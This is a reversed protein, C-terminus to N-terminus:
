KCNNRVLRPRIFKLQIAVGLTERLLVCRSEQTVRLRADDILHHQREVALAVLEAFNAHAGHANRLDAVLKRRTVTLLSRAANLISVLVHRERALSESRVNDNIRM